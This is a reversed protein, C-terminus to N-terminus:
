VKRSINKCHLIPDIDHGLPFAIREITNECMYKKMSILTMMHHLNKHIFNCEIFMIKQIWSTEHIHHILVHDVIYSIM